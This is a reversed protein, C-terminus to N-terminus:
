SRQSLGLEGVSVERIANGVTKLVPRMRGHDSRERCDVFHNIRANTAVVLCDDIMRVIRRTMKNIANRQPV